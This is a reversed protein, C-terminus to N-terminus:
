IKVHIHRSIVEGKGRWYPQVVWHKNGRTVPFSSVLHIRPSKRTYGLPGTPQMIKRERNIYLTCRTHNALPSKGKIQRAVNLKGYDIEKLDLIKKSSTLLIMVSWVMIYEGYVDAYLNDLMFQDNYGPKTGYFNIYGAGWDSPKHVSTRWIDKLAEVQIPKEKWISALNAQLFNNFHRPDQPFKKDLDFFQSIPCVNPPDDEGLSLNTWVWTVIGKRGAEDAEILFGIKTPLPRSPNYKENPALTDRLKQRGAEPWEIWIKPYPIRIYNMIDRLVKPRGLTLEVATHISNEDFLFKPCGQFKDELFPFIKLVPHNIKNQERVAHSYATINDM